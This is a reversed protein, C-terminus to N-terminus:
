AEEPLLTRMDEDVYAIREEQRAYADELIEERTRFLEAEQMGFTALLRAKENSRPGCCRM